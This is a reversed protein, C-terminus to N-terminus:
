LRFNLSALISQQMSKPLQTYTVILKLHIQGVKTSRLTNLFPGLGTKEFICAINFPVSFRAYPKVGFPSVFLVEFYCFPFDFLIDYM